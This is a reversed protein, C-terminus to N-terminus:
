MRYDYGSWMLTATGERNEGLAFLEQVFQDLQAPYFRMEFYVKGRSEERLEDFDLAEYLNIDVATRGFGDVCLFKLGVFSDFTSPDENIKKLPISDDHSIGFWFEEVQDLRKPFGQLSRAFELLGSGDPPTYFNTRGAFRGNTAFVNLTITYGDNHGIEFSLFEKHIDM